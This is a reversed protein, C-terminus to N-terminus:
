GRPGLLDGARCHLVQRPAGGLRRRVRLQQRAQDTSALLGRERLRQRLTTESVELGAGGVAEQVVGYSAASDLYLERGVVWGICIGRAVWGRGAGSRQWGWEGAKKGPARGQGDAVHARGSLLAGRLGSVFRSVVDGVEPTGQQRRGVEALAGEMRGEWEEREGRSVAAREEAFRFFLEAGAQLEALAEAGRAHGAVGQWRSRLERVRQVLAAQGAEYQGAVWSVFGGMAAALLGEQGARQCGELEGRQVEGPGVEVILLRAQISRMVPVQEGTALVLGGPAPPVRIQGDGRLRGRGQQNGVARFLREALAELTADGPGGTPAFDDVVLLADGVEGALWELANATSAFSAPLHSAGMGAGFHQQCVAALATKFVGSPGRLYVGFNVRGLAARYTAALLPVSIREPAARLVQWSAQVSRRLEAADPAAGLRYRQLPGALEVRGGAVAGGAGLVGGAHVYVWEEQHKQWGLRTCIQEQAIAGSLWQIAARAHQRQGPYLIAEPGLRSVVWDMREFEGATLTFAVARGAVEGEMALTRGRAAGEDSVMDRVIRVRFNTVPTDKFHGDAWRQRRVIGQGRQEYSVGPCGSATPQAGRGHEDEPGWFVMRFKM